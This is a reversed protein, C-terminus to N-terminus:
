SLRCWWWAGTVHECQYRGSGEPRLVTVEAPIQEDPDFALGFSQAPIGSTLVTGVVGDAGEVVFPEDIAGYSWTAREDLARESRAELDGFGVSARRVRLADIPQPVGSTVLVVFVLCGGWVAAADRPASRLRFLSGCWAGALVLLGLLVALVEVFGELATFALRADVLLLLASLALASGWWAQLWPLLWGRVAARVVLLAVAVPGLATVPLLGSSPPTLWWSFPVVIAWALVLLAFGAASQTPTPM